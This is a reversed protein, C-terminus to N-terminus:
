ISNFQKFLLIEHLLINIHSWKSSMWLNVSPVNGVAFIFIGSINGIHCFFNSLVIDDFTSNYFNTIVCSNHSLNIWIYIKVGCHMEFNKININAFLIKYVCILNTTIHFSQKLTFNLLIWLSILTLIILIWTSTISSIINM